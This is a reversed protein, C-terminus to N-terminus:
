KTMMDGNLYCGSEEDDCVPELTFVGEQNKIVAHLKRIGMGGIEIDNKIEM